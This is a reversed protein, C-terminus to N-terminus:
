LPNGRDALPLVSDALPLFPRLAFVIDSLFGRTSRSGSSTADIDLFGCARARSADTRVTKTRATNTRARERRVRMEYAARARRADDDGRSKGLNTLPFIPDAAAQDCRMRAAHSPEDLATTDLLMSMYSEAMFGKALRRRRLKRATNRAIIDTATLSKAVFVVGRPARNEVFSPRAPDTCRSLGSASRLVQARLRGAQAPYASIMSDFCMNMEHSDAATPSHPCGCHRATRFIVTLEPRSDGRRGAAIHKRTESRHFLCSSSGNTDLSRRKTAGSSTPRVNKEPVRDPSEDAPRRQLSSASV